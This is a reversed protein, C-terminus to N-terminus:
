KVISFQHRQRDGGTFLMELVYNGAKYASLDISLVNTGAGIQRRNLLQGSQNFIHLTFAKQSLVNGISINLNGATPNPFVSTTLGANGPRYVLISSYTIKGDLDVMKLRYYNTPAVSVDVYQYNGATGAFNDAQLAGIQQWNNGNNSKEVLFTKTNINQAITWNLVVNNGSTAARFVSITVPLSANSGTTFYMPQQNFTNQAFAPGTVTPGATQGTPVGSVTATSYKLQTNAQNVIINIQGTGNGNSGKAITANGALRIVVAAINSTQTSMNLSNVRNNASPESIVLHGYIDMVSNLVNIASGNGSITVTADTAIVISDNDGPTFPSGTTTWTSAATWNGSVNAKILRRQAHLGFMLILLAITLYFNKM